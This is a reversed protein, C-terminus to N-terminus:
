RARAGLLFWSDLRGQVNANDGGAYADGTFEFNPGFELGFPLRIMLESYLRHLPVLPIRNDRYQGATFTASVFSYSASFVFFDTPMFSFGINTGIRRTEGINVNADVPLGVFAIEDELAMFFINASVDLMRGFRYAVGIEANFGREPGLDSNFTTGGGAIQALEDVFPHRFLTSFRAYLRLDQIPNFAVGVDYVFAMFIKSDDVTNDQNQGGSVAMDFRAGANFHLNPLPSLRAILYSGVTWQSFSFDDEKVARGADSFEEVGLRALSLDVGGLLRLPMGALDFIVLGQPRAELIHLTRDAFPNGWLASPMDSAIQGGRYSLPLNLEINEAPFWQLGIGGGFHRETNEDDFNPSGWAM